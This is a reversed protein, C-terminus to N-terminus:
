QIPYRFSKGTYSFWPHLFNLFNDLTGLRHLLLPALPQPSTSLEKRLTVSLSDKTLIWKGICISWKSLHGFRCPRMEQRKPRMLCGSQVRKTKNQQNPNPFPYPAGTCIKRHTSVLLWEWFSDIKNKISLRERLRTSVSEALSVPQHAEPIKRDRYVGGHGSKWMPAPFWAWTRMSIHCTWESHGREGVGYNQRSHTNKCEKEWVRGWTYISHGIKYLLVHTNASSRRLSGTSSENSLFLNNWVFLYSCSKNVRNKLRLLVGLFVALCSALLVLTVRRVTPEKRWLGELHCLIAPTAGTPPVPEEQHACEWTTLVSHM